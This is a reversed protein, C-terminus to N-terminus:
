RSCFTACSDPSAGPTPPLKISLEHEHIRRLQNIREHLRAGLLSFAGMRFRRVVRVWNHILKSLSQVSNGSTGAVVPTATHWATCLVHRSAFLLGWTDHDRACFPHPDTPRQVSGHFSIHRGLLSANLGTFQRNLLQLALFVSRYIRAMIIRGPLAIIPSLPVSSPSAFPNENAM